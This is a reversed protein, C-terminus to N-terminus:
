GLVSKLEVGGSRGKRIKDCYVLFLDKHPISSVHAQFESTQVSSAVLVHPFPSTPKPFLSTATLLALLSLLSM